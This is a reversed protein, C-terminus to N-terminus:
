NGVTHVRYCPLDKAVNASVTVDPPPKRIDHIRVNRAKALRSLEADESLFYHLGSVLEMGRDIAERLIPRWEAPLSGGAPAIGILLTDAKVESLSAIFPIKGGVGFVEGATRGKQTSDLFAVVEDARYRVVGTATKADHVNSKGETLIVIRKNM